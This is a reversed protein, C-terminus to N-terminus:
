LNGLLRSNLYKNREQERQHKIKESYYYYLKNNITQKM